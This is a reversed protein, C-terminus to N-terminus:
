RLVLTNVFFGILEDLAEDTRGAIPSGIPIDNGAGLRTLLAALAAHLVMFPSASSRAALERIREHLASSIVIPVADGRHEAVAPRVRDAPLDLKDPLGALATRWHDLSRQTDTEQQWLAF